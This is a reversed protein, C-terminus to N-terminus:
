RKGFGFEFDSVVSGIRLIDLIWIHLEQFERSHFEAMPCDVVKDLSPVFIPAGNTPVAGGCTL